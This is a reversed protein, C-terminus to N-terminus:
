TGDGLAGLVGVARGQLFGFEIGREPGTAIGQAAGRIGLIAVFVIHRPQGHGTPAVLHLVAVGNNPLSRYRGPAVVIQAAREALPIIAQTVQVNKLCSGQKGTM